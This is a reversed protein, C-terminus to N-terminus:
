QHGAQTTLMNPRRSQLRQSSLLRRLSEHSCRGCGRETWPSRRPFSAHWSAFLARRLCHVFSVKHPKTAQMAVAYSVNIQFCLVAWCLKAYSAHHSAYCLGAYSPMAPMTSLMAYSADTTAAAHGFPGMRDSRPHCLFFKPWLKHIHIYIYIRYAIIDPRPDQQQQQSARVKIQTKAAQPNLAATYEFEM